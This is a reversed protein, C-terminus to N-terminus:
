LKFKLARPAHLRLTEIDLYCLSIDPDNYHDVWKEFETERELGPIVGLVKEYAKSLGLIKLLFDDKRYVYLKDDKFPGFIAVAIRMRPKSESAFLMDISKPDFGSPADAILALSTSREIMKIITAGINERLAIDGVRGGISKGSEGRADTEKSRLSRVSGYGQVVDIAAQYAGDPDYSYWRALIEVSAIPARSLARAIWPKYGPLHRHNSESRDLKEIFEAGSLYRRLTEPKIDYKAAVSALEDADKAPPSKALVAHADLVIDYWGVGHPDAPPRRGDLTKLTTIWFASCEFVNM